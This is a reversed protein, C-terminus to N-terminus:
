RGARSKTEGSRDYIVIENPRILNLMRRVQEDLMDEDIHRSRILAIRQELRQREMHLVTARSEAGTLKAELKLWAFLGRDGEVFHYGFYVVLGVALVKITVPRARERIKDM